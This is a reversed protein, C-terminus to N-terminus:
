LAIKFLKEEDPEVLVGVRHRDLRHLMPTHPMTISGALSLTPRLRIVIRGGTVAKGTGVMPKLKSGPTDV